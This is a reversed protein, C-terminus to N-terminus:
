EVMELSEILKRIVEDYHTPKDESDTRHALIELVSGDKLPVLYYFLHEGYPGPAGPLVYTEWPGIKQRFQDKMALKRSFEADSGRQRKLRIQPLDRRLAKLDQGAAWRRDILSEENPPNYELGRKAMAEAMEKAGPLAAPQGTVFSQPVKFRLGLKKSEYRIEAPRAQVALLFGAVLVLLLKRNM